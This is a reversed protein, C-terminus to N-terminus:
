ITDKLLSFYYKGKKFEMSIVNKNALKNAANIINNGDQCDYCLPIKKSLKIIKEIPINNEIKLIEILCKENDTLYEKKVPKYNTIGKKISKFGKWGFIDIYNKDVGRCRKNMICKNCVKGKIKNSDSSEDLNIVDGDPSAVVTNFPDLGIAKQYYEGLFCPPVNLFLIEEGLGKDELLKVAKIFHPSCRELSVGLSKNLYMNGTYIPYIIVFNSIGKNLLFNILRDLKNYNYKNILINNGTRVKLRIMNEIAKISREYAGNISVLKDYIKPDDSVFSFKCFRLGAEKLKKAYDFNSLKIGNTQIRIFNFGIKAAAKIIEILDNRVTPEGGSLGLKQYGNKKAKYIEKIISDFSANKSKDFDGQSCFLCRANCTYNLLIEYCQNTKM